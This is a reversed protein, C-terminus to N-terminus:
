FDGINGKGVCHGTSHSWGTMKEPNPFGPSSEENVEFM